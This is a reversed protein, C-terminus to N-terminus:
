THICTSLSIMMFRTGENEKTLRDVEVKQRTLEDVTANLRAELAEVDNQWDEFKNVRDELTRILEMKAGLWGTIDTDGAQGFGPKVFLLGLLTLLSFARFCM